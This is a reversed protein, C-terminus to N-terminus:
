TRLSLANRPAAPDAVRVPIAYRQFPKRLQRSSRDFDTPRFRVCRSIKQRNRGSDLTLEESSVLVRSSMLTVSQCREFRAPLECRVTFRDRAKSVGFVLRVVQIPNERDPSRFNGLFLGIKGVAAYAVRM